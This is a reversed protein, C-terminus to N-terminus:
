DLQLKSGVSVLSRLAMALSAKEKDVIVYIFVDPLHKLPLMIHYQKHFTILLDEPVETINMHKNIKNLAIFLETNSASVYEMDISNGRSGLVFGSKSDVITAAIVGSIGMVVDLTENINNAM